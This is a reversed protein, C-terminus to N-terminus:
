QAKAGAIRNSESLALVALAMAMDRTARSGIMLIAERVSSVKRSRGFYPANALKLLNVSLTPDQEVLRQLTDLGEDQDVAARIKQASEPFLRMHESREIAEQIKLQKDM